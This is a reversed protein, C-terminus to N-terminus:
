LVRERALDGLPIPKLPPRVSFSGVESVPRGREHAMLRALLPGCTRGQCPGQGVRTWTKLADLEWVGQDIVARVEGATVEECRCIPTDDTTLADLGPLPAFLTNLMAAFRALHRRRPALAMLERVLRSEPIRGLRHAAALGAIQGELMAATAGAVGAAEGAVFLGPRSTELRETLCPVWGGRAAEFSHDCGALQTLEVNPLFGFGLCLADVRVEEESGPIPRGQRDLRAVTVAELEDRGSAQIATWGLRYPIRARQLRYLYHWGERLRDWNGWMAPAHPMWRSLPAAELVAVVQAGQRSLTDAAALLLPGSGALLMRRGPLVGHEKALLQAGGVTMVGPLTWGPFPIILERAGSAVIVTEADLWDLGRPSYLALRWGATSTEIGWVLTQTRLGIGSIALERLLTRGQQEATPLPHAATPRFAGKLYQGGPAPYEDLLTVHLGSRAATIAASLGAPGAGVVALETQEM